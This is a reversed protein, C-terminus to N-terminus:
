IKGTIFDLYNKQNVLVFQADPYNNKWASPVKVITKNWKFEYAVLDTGSEGILDIEQQDYTRWFYTNVRRKKYANLKMREAM